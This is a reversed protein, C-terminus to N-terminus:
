GLDASEGVGRFQTVAPTFTFVSELLHLVAGTLRRRDQTTPVSARIFHPRQVAVHVVSVRVTHCLVM